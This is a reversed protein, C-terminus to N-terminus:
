ATFKSAQQKVKPTIEASPTSDPRPDPIQNHREVGLIVKGDFGVNSGAKFSEIGIQLIARVVDAFSRGTSEEIQKLNDHILVQEDSLRVSFTVLESEKKPRGRAVM